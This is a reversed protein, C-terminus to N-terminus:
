RYSWKFPLYRHRNQAVNALYPFRLRLSRRFQRWSGYERYLFDNYWEAWLTKLAVTDVGCNSMTKLLADRDKNFNGNMLSAAFDNHKAIMSTGYQRMYSTYSNDGKIKGLTLARMACFKEHVQLNTFDISQVDKWITKLAETRYVAYYSWSNRFGALVRRNADSDAYDAPVDYLAYQKSTAFRPGRVPNPYCWFGQIRGSVAVYDLNNDLFDICQNLGSCAVLDDNDAVMAYPTEVRDFALLMKFWWHSLTADHGAYFYDVNGHGAYNCTVSQPSASGDAIIIKGIGKASELFRSTFQERGKLPLVISIQMNM